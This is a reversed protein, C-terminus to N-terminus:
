RRSRSRARDIHSLHTDIIDDFNDERIETLLARVRAAADAPTEGPRIKTSMAMEGLECTNYQVVSLKDNGLSVTITEGEYDGDDSVHRRPKEVKDPNDGLDRM